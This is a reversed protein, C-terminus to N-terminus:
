SRLLPILATRLQQKARSIAHRVSPLTAGTVECIEAYSLGGYMQLLLAERYNEPLDNLAAHVLRQIEITEYPVDHSSLGLDEIEVLEERHARKQNLCLNRAIRLLFALVNDIQDGKRVAMLFRMFTEQVIDRGQQQGGMVKTAYALLRRIHRDYLVRFAPEAEAHCLRIYELLERDSIAHRDIM